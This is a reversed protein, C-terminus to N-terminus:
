RDALTSGSEYPTSPSSSFFCHSQRPTSNCFPSRTPIFREQLWIFCDNKSQSFRAPYGIWVKQWNAYFCFSVLIFVRTTPEGFHCISSTQKRKGITVSVRQNPLTIQPGEPQKKTRAESIAALKGSRWLFIFIVAIVGERKLHTNGNKFDHKRTNVHNWTTPGRKTGYLQTYNHNWEKVCKEKQVHGKRLIQLTM